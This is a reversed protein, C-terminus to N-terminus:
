INFLYAESCSESLINNKLYIGYHGNINENEIIPNVEIKIHAFFIILKWNKEILHLDSQCLGCYEIKIIIEGIKLESITFEKKKLVQNNKNCVYGTYKIIKGFKM